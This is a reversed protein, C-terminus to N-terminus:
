PYHDPLDNEYLVVDGSGLNARVWAVAKERNAVVHVTAGEPVSSGAILARRNTRGVVVLDTAALAAAAAFARNEEGQRRGLEVMGPTVVVLRQSAPPAQAAEPSKAEGPVAAQAVLAALAESAGSPNSNYTDDLIVFGAPSRGAELRHGVAPLDSLRSAIADNGVGLARAVGIACALNGPQVGAPVVLGEALTAPGEARFKPEESAGGASNGKDAAGTGPSGSPAPVPVVVPATAPAGDPGIQVTMRGDAGRIVSVDSGIDSASCRVVRKGEEALRDALVALRPDDVNLVVTSAAVTIEAKAELIRDESGFRELHVPGIATIVAIEPPCWRCLDAIEGPGYTGMEAVFVQTGDSLHENIARALGARNNFSAPSAVVSRQTAILHTLHNKTSTKGFSGTIAVVTPAVQSLRASAQHVFRGAMRSEFPATLVCAADVLVPVALAGLVALPSAVGTVVGVVVVVVQIGLWVAALTRLRRTWALPSSRGRMSLGIPGVGVAV